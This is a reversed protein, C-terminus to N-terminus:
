EITIDICQTSNVGIESTFVLSYIPVWQGYLPSKWGCFPKESGKYITGVQHSNARINVKFGDFKFEYESDTQVASICSGFHFATKATTIGTGEFNDEIHIKNTEFWEIQRVHRIGLRKVYGDHFARLKPQPILSASLLECKYSGDWIFPGKMEAQNKGGLEVTNHAITSRFYNRINQDGNYQGTGPDILVPIDKWYLLISLADSHGHGYTNGLGLINHNFVIKGHNRKIITFGGNPFTKMHISETDSPYKVCNKDLEITGGWFKLRDSMESKVSNKYPIKLLLEGVQILGLYPATNYHGHIRQVYGDDRDGFDPFHKGRDTIFEVFELIKKVRDIFEPPVIELDEILLYHEIADLVFGLYWLTQEKNTGDPNIQRLVERRLISRGLEEWRQALSNGNLAKGLWYLGLGEIILHNGASSHSSLRNEIYEGSKLALGILAKMVHDTLKSKLLCCTWYINVWRIAVEMASIYSPGFPFPNNNLWDELIIITRKEDIKAMLPLFQLRNLEWNIRIDGHLNGPRYDIKGFHCNPWPQKETESNFWPIASYINIERQYINFQNYNVELKASPLEYFKLQTNDEHFEVYKKPTKYSVSIKYIWFIEHIRKFIEGCNMKRIRQFYWTIKKISFM